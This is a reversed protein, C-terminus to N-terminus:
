SLHFYSFDLYNVVHINGAIGIKLIKGLSDDNAFPIAWKGGGPSIGSEPRLRKSTNPRYLLPHRRRSEKNVFASVINNKRARYATGRLLCRSNRNGAM